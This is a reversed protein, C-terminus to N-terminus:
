SPWSRARLRRRAPARRPPLHDWRWWLVAAPLATNFVTESLCQSLVM